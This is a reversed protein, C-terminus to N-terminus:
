AVRHQYGAKVVAGLGDSITSAVGCSFDGFRYADEGERGRFQKGLDVTRLLPRVHVVDDLRAGLGAASKVWGPVRGVGLRKCLENSFDCCNRQLLHYSTGLWTDMLEEILANVDAQSLGM